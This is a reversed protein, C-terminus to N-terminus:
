RGPRRTRFRFQSGALPVDAMRAPIRRTVLALGATQHGDHQSRAAHHFPQQRSGSVLRRHRSRATGAAERQIPPVHREMGQVQRDISPTTITLQRLIANPTPKGDFTTSISGAWQQAAQATAIWLCDAYFYTSTPAGLAPLPGMKHSSVSGTSALTPTLEINIPWQDCHSSFSSFPRASGVAPLM